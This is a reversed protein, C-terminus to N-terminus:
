SSLKKWKSDASIWISFPHPYVPLWLGAEAVAHTCLIKELCCFAPHHLIMYRVLSPTCLHLGQFLSFSFSSQYTLTCLLSWVPSWFNSGTGGNGTSHNLDHLLSWAQQSPERWTSCIPIHELFACSVTSWNRNLVLVLSSDVQLFFSETDMNCIEQLNEESRSESYERTM